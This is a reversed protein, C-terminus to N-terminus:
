LKFSGSWSLPPNCIQHVIEQFSSSNIYLEVCTQCFSQLTVHNRIGLIKFEEYRSVPIKITTAKRSDIKM